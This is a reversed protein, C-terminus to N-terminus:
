VIQTFYGYAILVNFKGASIGIDTISLIAPRETVQDLTSLWNNIATELAVDTTGSFTKTRVTYVWSAQNPVPPEELGMIPSYGKVGM